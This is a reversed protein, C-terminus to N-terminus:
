ININEMRLIFLIHLYILRLFVAPMSEAAAQFTQHEYDTNNGREGTANSEAASDQSHEQRDGQRAGPARGGGRAVAARRVGPRDPRSCM